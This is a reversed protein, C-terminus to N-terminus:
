ASWENDTEAHSMTDCFRGDRDCGPVEGPPRALSIERITAAPLGMTARDSQIATSKKEQDRSAACRGGLVGNTSRPAHGNSHQWSPCQVARSVSGTYARWRAGSM